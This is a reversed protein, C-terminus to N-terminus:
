REQDVSAQCPSYAHGVSRFTSALTAKSKSGDIFDSQISHHPGPTQFSVRVEGMTLEMFQSEPWDSKRMLISLVVTLLM